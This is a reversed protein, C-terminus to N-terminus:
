GLLIAAEDATLGLRDTIVKRAAAKADSEAKLAAVEKAYDLREKTEISTENRETIAEEGTEVNVNKEIIKM